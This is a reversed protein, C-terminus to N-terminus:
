TTEMFKPVPRDTWKAIGAKAVRYYNRYSSASDGPVVCQPYQKMAPPPETFPGHPINKPVSRLIDFLKEETLMVRGYRYTYEKCLAAFLYWLWRYNSDSERCWVASPHNIHSAKYLVSELKADPHKWRRIRRGSSADIYETGDLIRHATSLLQASELPM